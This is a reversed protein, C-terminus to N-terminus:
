VLSSPPLLVCFRSGGGPREEVWIRGQHAQAVERAVTLGLGSGRRTEGQGQAFPEFIRERDEAPVGPGGDEVVLLIGQEDAMESAHLTVIGGEPSFRLANSALNVLMRSLLSNDGNLRLTRPQVNRRLIVHRQMALSQLMKSIDEFLFELEITEYNLPAQGIQLRRSDLLDNSLTLV